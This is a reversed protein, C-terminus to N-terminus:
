NDFLTVNATVKPSYIYGVTELTNLNTGFVYGNPLVAFAAELTANPLIQYTYGGIITVLDTQNTCVKHGSGSVM